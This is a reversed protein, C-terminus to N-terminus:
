TARDPLHAKVPHLECLCCNANFNFYMFLKPAPIPSGSGPVISKDTFWLTM